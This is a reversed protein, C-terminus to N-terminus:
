SSPPTCNSWAQCCFSVAGLFSPDQHPYTQQKVGRFNSKHLIYQRWLIWTDINNAKYTKLCWAFTSLCVLGMSGIPYPIIIPRVKTGQKFIKFSLQGLVRRSVLLKNAGSFSIFLGKPIGAKWTLVTLKLSPLNIFSSFILACIWRRDRRCITQGLSSPNKWIRQRQAWAM